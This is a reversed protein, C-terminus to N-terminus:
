HSKKRLHLNEFQKLLRGNKFIQFVLQKELEGCLVSLMYVTTQIFVNEKSITHGFTVIKCEGGLFTSMIEYVNSKEAFITKRVPM